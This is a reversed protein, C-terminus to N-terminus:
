AGVRGRASVACAFSMWQLRAALWAELKGKGGTVELWQARAQSNQDLQTIKVVKQAVRDSNIVDAQTAMYGPMSIAPLYMGVIPDPSKVDIVVASAAIYQRPLMLSVVATTAVTALLMFLILKYRARLILLFQHLNM